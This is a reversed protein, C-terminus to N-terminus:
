VWFTVKNFILERVPSEGDYRRIVVLYKDFSWPQNKIIRDVEPLNNFVFLCKHDGIRKIKFGNTSRWLQKFTRAMAEMILFRPTLFKAALMYEGIHHDARMTYGSQEKKSLSLNDWIAALDEM